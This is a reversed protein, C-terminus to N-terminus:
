EKLAGNDYLIKTKLVADCVTEYFEQSETNKVEYFYELMNPISTQKLVHQWLVFEKMRYVSKESTKVKDPAFKEVFSLIHDACVHVDNMSRRFKNLDPAEKNEKGVSSMGTDLQYHYLGDEIVDVKKAFTFLVHSFYVDEGMNCYFPETNAVLADTVSRRYANKWVNPMITGDHIGEIVDDCPKPVDLRGEPEYYAGFRIIDADSSELKKDLISLTNDSIYDDSDLFLIVEGKANEMGTYRAKILSGNKDHKIVRYHKDAAALENLMEYSADTSGDDVFIVEYDDFDQSKLSEICRDMKGVQNYVPVLISFRCTDGM